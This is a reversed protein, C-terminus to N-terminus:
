EWGTWDDLDRYQSSTDGPRIDSRKIRGSGKCRACRTGDKLRGLGRCAPCSKTLQEDEDPEDDHDPEDDDGIDEPDDPWDVDDKTKKVRESGGGGCVACIIGNGYIGIGKCYSCVRTM